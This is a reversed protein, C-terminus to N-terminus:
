GNATCWETAAVDGECIEDVTRFGDVIVTDAINEVVVGIPVLAIYPVM